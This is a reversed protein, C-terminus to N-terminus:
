VVTLVIKGPTRGGDPYPIMEIIKSLACSRNERNFSPSIKGRTSKICIVADSEGATSAAASTALM